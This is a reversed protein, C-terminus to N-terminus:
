APSTVESSPKSYPGHFPPAAKDGSSLVGLSPHSLTGLHDRDCNYCYSVHSPGHKESMLDIHNM